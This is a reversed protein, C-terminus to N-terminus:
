KIVETCIENDYMIKYVECFPGKIKRRHISTYHQVRSHGARSEWM